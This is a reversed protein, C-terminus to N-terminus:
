GGAGPTALHESSAQALVSHRAWDLAGSVRQNLKADTPRLVEASGEIAAGLLLFVGATVGYEHPAVQVENGGLEGPLGYLEELLITIPILLM